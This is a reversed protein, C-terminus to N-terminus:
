SPPTQAGQHHAARDIQQAIRELTDIIFCQPSLRIGFKQQVENIVRLTLLSHGGADFFNEEVGVTERSLLKAWLESLYRETQTAPSRSRRPRLWPAGGPAPLAQYDVKGNATLPLTELVVFHQPIMYNPIFERLSKRLTVPSPRQGPAPVVYAMLREDGEEVRHVTVVADAVVDTDRLTSEIEGPEIRFGRIKIQSDSRGLHELRGDDLWRALDGTRYLRGTGFPNQRFRAASLEPRRHYGEAVGAGAIALEGVTGPAVLQDGADLVYVQTNAIPRGITVRDTGNDVRDCTSWITTETPGYLNWVRAENFAAHTALDIPLKEGGCLIRFGGPAQWGDDALMRWTAPTAQMATAGSQALAGALRRPDATDTADVVHCRAGVLAPLWLELLSIDFSVTTVAALVEDGDLGPEARMGELFNMLSRHRVRVGKPEGTSGSTYILYATADLDRDRRTSVAPGAADDVVDLRPLPRDPLSVRSARDCIVAAAGADDLMFGMRQRPFAPDLPLYVGGARWIALMATLLHRGRTLCVGVPAGPAVLQTLAGALRDAAEDLERWTLEGRGDSAVAEGPRTAAHEAVHQSLTKSPISRQTANWSEIRRRDGDDLLALAQVPRDPHAVADGILNLWHRLWRKVSAGKFLSEAYEATIELRDGLDDVWLSLDTNASASELTEPETTLGRLDPGITDVRRFAFLTQFVPTRNLERAPQLDAVLSEFPLSQHDFANVCHERVRALLGAFSEELRVECRIPLTNLMMGMTNRWRSTGSSVPTGVVLDLQGTYRALFAYYLAILTMFPTAGHSQGMERLRDTMERTLTLRELGGAFDQRPPRPHDQPLALTPLDGSLHDLWYARDRDHRPSEDADRQWQAFAGYAPIEPAPQDPEAYYSSLQEWLLDLSRGDFFCHHIEFFLTHDSASRRLLAATWTPGECLDFERDLLAHIARSREDDTDVVIVELQADVQRYVVQAPEEGRIDFRTRLAQQEDVIRRWARQLRDVNLEGRIRLAVPIRYARTGSQMQALFFLRAQAPSLPWRDRAGEADPEGAGTSRARELRARVLDRRTDASDLSKNGTM